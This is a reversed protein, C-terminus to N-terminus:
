ESATEVSKQSRMLKSQKRRIRRLRRRAIRRARAKRAQVWEVQRNNLYQSATEGQFNRGMLIFVSSLLVFPGCMVVVFVDFITPLWIGGFLASIIMLLSLIVNSWGLRKLGPPFHTRYERWQKSVALAESEWYTREEGAPLDSMAEKVRKLNRRWRATPILWFIAGTALAVVVGSSLLVPIIDWPLLPPIDVVPSPVDNSLPTPPM